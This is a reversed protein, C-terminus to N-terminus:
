GRWAMIDTQISVVSEMKATGSTGTTPGVNVWGSVPLLLPQLAFPLQLM